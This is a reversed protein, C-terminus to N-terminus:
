NTKLFFVFDISLEVTFGRLPYLTKGKVKRKWSDEDSLRSLLAFNETTGIRQSTCKAQCPSFCCSLSFYTDSLVNFRPFCDFFCFFPFCNHFELLEKLWLGRHIQEVIDTCYLTKDDALLLVFDPFYVFIGM